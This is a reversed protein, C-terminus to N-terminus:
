DVKSEDTFNDIWVCVCVNIFAYDEYVRISPKSIRIKRVKEDM